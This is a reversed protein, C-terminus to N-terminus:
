SLHTFTGRHSRPLHMKCADDRLLQAQQVVLLQSKAPSSSLASTQTLGPLIELVSGKEEITAAAHKSRPYDKM